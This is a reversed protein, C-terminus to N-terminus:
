RAEESRETRTEAGRQVMDDYSGFRDRAAAIKARLALSMHLGDNIGAAELEREIGRRSIEVNRAAMQSAASGPPGSEERSAKIDDLLKAFGQQIRERESDTPLSYIEVDLVRDIRALEERVARGLGRCLEAVQPATPARGRDICPARGELILRCAEAITWAPFPRLAKIILKLNADLTLDSAGFTPFADLLTGLMAGIEAEDAPVLSAALVGRRAVLLGRERDTPANTDLMERRGGHTAEVANSLRDLLRDLDISILSPPSSKRNQPTLANMSSM